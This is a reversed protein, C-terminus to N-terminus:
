LFFCVKSVPVEGAWWDAGPRQGLDTARQMDSVVVSEWRFGSRPCCRVNSVCRHMCCWGAGEVHSEAPLRNFSRDWPLLLPRVAPTPGAHRNLGAKLTPAAGQPLSGSAANYYLTGSGGSPIGAQLCRYLHTMQHM